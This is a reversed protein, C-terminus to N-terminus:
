FDLWNKVTFRQKEADYATQMDPLPEFRIDAPIQYCGIESFKSQLDPVEGRGVVYIQCFDGQAPDLKIKREFTHVTVTGDDHLELQPQACPTDLTDPNFLPLRFRSPVYNFPLPYFADQRLELPYTNMPYNDTPTQELAKEYTRIFATFQLNHLRLSSSIYFHINLYQETGGNSLDCYRRFVLNDRRLVFFKYIIMGLFLSPSLLSITALFARINKYLFQDDPLSWRPEKGFLETYMHYIYDLGLHYDRTILVLVSALLIALIANIVIFDLTLRAISKSAIYQRIKFNRRPHAAKSTMM